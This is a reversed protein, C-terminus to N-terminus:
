KTEGKTITRVTDTHRHVIVTENPTDKSVLWERPNLGWAELRKRQEYTPKKGNKMRAKKRQDQLKDM